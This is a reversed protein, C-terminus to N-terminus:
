FDLDVDFDARREWFYAMWVLDIGIGIIAVALAAPETLLMDVKSLTLLALEAMAGYWGWRTFHRINTALSRQVVCGLALGAAMLGAGGAQMWEGEWMLAVAVFGVVVAGIGCGIATLNTLFIFLSAPWNHEPAAEGALQRDGATLPLWASPPPELAAADIQQQGFTTETHSM